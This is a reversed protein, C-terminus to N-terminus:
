VCIFSWPLRKQRRIVGSDAVCLPSGGCRRQGARRSLDVIIPQKAAAAPFRRKRRTAPHGQPPRHRTNQHITTMPVNEPRGGGLPGPQ